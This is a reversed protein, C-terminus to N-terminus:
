RNAEGAGAARSSERDVNGGGCADPPLPTLRSAVRLLGVLLVAWPDGDEARRLEDATPTLQM